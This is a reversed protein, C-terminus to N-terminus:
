DPEKGHTVISDLELELLKVGLAFEALSYEGANGFRADDTGVRTAVFLMGRLRGATAEALLYELETVLEQSVRQPTELLTIM